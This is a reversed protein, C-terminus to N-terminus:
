KIINIDKAEPNSKIEDALLSVKGGANLIKEKAKESFALACVNVKKTLTGQSLVKGPVVNMKKDDADENLKDLNVEVRSRRPYSAISAVVLWKDNKKSAILTKVLESNTKRKLSKELQTRTKVM